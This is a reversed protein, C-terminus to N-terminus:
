LGSSWLLVTVFALKETDAMPSVVLNLTLGGGAEKTEKVKAVPINEPFV